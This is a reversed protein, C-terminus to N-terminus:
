KGPESLTESHILGGELFVSMTVPAQGEQEQRFVLDYRGDGTHSLEAATRGAKLGAPTPNDSHYHQLVTNPGFRFKVVATKLSALELHLRLDNGQRQIRYQGSLGPYSLTEFLDAGHELVRHNATGSVHEVQVPGRASTFWDSGAFLALGLALGAAFTFAYAPQLRLRFLDRCAALFGKGARPAPASGLGAARQDVQALISNRLGPPPNLMDVKEFVGVAQALERYYIRAEEQGSLYKELERSQDTSNTGDLEQNMLKIYEPKIM